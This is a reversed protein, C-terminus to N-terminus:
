LEVSRKVAKFLQISVATLVTAFNPASRRVERGRVPRIPLSLYKLLLAYFGVFIKRVHWSRRRAGERKRTKDM